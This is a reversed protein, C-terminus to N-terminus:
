LLHHEQNVALRPVHNNMSSVELHATIGPALVLNQIIKLQHVLTLLHGEIVRIVEPVHVGQISGGPRVLIVVLAQVPAQVRDLIRDQDPVQIQVLTPVITTTVTTVTIVLIVALDPDNPAIKQGIALRVV